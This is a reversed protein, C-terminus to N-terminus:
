GLYSTSVFLSAAVTSVQADGRVPDIAGIHLDSVQVLTLLTSM